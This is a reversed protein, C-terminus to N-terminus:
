IKLKSYKQRISRIVYENFDSDIYKTMKDYIKKQKKLIEKTKIGYYYINIISTIEEDYCKAKKSYARYLKKCIKKAVTPKYYKEYVDEGYLNKNGFSYIILLICLLDINKSYYTLGKQM